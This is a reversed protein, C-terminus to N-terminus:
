GNIASTIKEAAERMQDETFHKKPWHVLGDNEFRPMLHVHAHMVVQGAVAGTNIGVNFGTAGVAGPAANAIRHVVLFLRAVAEEPMAAFNDHHVKPIVLTHGINVPNIDLFAFASDDEYVKYAPIEGCIIKCFLCDSM